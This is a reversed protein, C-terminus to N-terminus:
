WQSPNIPRDYGDDLPEGDENHWEDALSNEDDPTGHKEDEFTGDPYEGDDNPFDEIGRQGDDDERSKDGDKDLLTLQDPHADLNTLLQTQKAKAAVEGQWKQFVRDGPQLLTFPGEQADPPCGVAIAQITTTTRM